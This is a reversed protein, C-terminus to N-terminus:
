YLPLGSGRRAFRTSGDDRHAVLRAPAPVVLEDERRADGAGDNNAGDDDEGSFRSRHGPVIWSKWCRTFISLMSAMATSIGSLFFKPPLVYETRLRQVTM